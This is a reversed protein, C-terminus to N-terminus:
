EKTVMYFAYAVVGAMIPIFFIASVATLAITISLVLVGVMWLAITTFLQQM